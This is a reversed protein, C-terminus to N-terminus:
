GPLKCLSQAQAVFSRGQGLVTALDDPGKMEAKSKGRLLYYDKMMENDFARVEEPGTLGDYKFSDLAKIVAATDTSQARRVSEAIAYLMTYGAASNNNPTTKHAKRVAEVFRKNRANEATHWYQAGFYVGEVIQPGLSQLQDLGASWVMLIAMKQKIGFNMAQRLTQVSQASFNLLLLVDPKAAVANTLYGSFEREALSHFSNGVLEGGHEEIVRKSNALLSQGFVYNPTIAYWRKANPNLKLFPRVTQEVAGYTPTAWRFTNSNCESGTIEDAGASTFYIAGNRAAEKGMALAESSLNAGIFFRAGSQSMQEQMKRVAVAPNSESDVRVYNVEIGLERRADEVAVKAGIETDMGLDALAGSFPTMNVVTIKAPAQGFAFRPLVGTAATALSLKLLSRKDTKVAREGM